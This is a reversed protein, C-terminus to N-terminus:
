AIYLHEILIKTGIGILIVGGIFGVNIYKLRGFAQGIFVGAFSFLFATIGVLLIPLLIKIQLFAFSIGVALADISTAIGVIFLTKFSFNIEKKKKKKLSEYIMKIGLYLLLFFAIWHDYDIISTSFRYALSWGIALMLAQFVGMVLAMLRAEKYPSTKLGNGYSISVAFSDMALGMAIFIISIINM